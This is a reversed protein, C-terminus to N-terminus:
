NSEPEPLPFGTFGVVIKISTTLFKRVPDTVNVDRENSKKLVSNDDDIYSVEYQAVVGNLLEKTDGGNVWQCNGPCNNSISWSVTLNVTCFKVPELSGPKSSITTCYISNVASHSPTSSEM